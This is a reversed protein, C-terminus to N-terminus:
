TSVTLDTREKCIHSHLKKLKGLASGLAIQLVQDADDMTADLHEILAVVTIYDLRETQKKM